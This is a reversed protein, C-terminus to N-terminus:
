SGSIDMTARDRYIRSFIMAAAARHSKKIIWRPATPKKGLSRRPLPQNDVTISM